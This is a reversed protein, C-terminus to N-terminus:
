LCYEQRISHNRRMVVFLQSLLQCLHQITREIRIRVITCTLTMNIPRRVHNLFCQGILSQDPHTEDISSTLSQFFQQEFAVIDNINCMLCDLQDRTFLDSRLRM